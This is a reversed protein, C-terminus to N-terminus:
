VRFLVGKDKGDPADPKYYGKFALRNTEPRILSMRMRDGDMIEHLVPVLLEVTGDHLSFFLGMRALRHLMVHHLMIQGWTPGRVIVLVSDESTM